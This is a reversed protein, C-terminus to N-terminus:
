RNLWCDALLLIAVGAWLGLAFHFVARGSFRAAILTLVAITPWAIRHFLRENM